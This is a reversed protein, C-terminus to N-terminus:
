ITKSKIDSNLSNRIRKLGALKIKNIAQKSVNLERGIQKEEKEEIFIMYLILKQKQTLNELAKILDKNQSVNKFNVDKSIGELFDVEDDSITNIREEDFDDDIINLTYLERNSIRKNKKKIDLAKFKLSKEIYSIFYVKFLYDNFKENLLDLCYQNKSIKAKFYLDKNIDSENLFNNALNNM